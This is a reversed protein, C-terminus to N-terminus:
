ATAGMQIHECEMRWALHCLAHFFLNRPARRGVDVELEIEDRSIPEGCLDCCRGTSPGGWTNAVPSCSLGANVIRQRALHRLADTKNASM